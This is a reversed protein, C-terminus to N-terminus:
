RRAGGVCPRARRRAGVAPVERGMLQLDLGVRRQRAGDESVVYIPGTDRFWSDDIDLEVIEVAGGCMTAAQAAVAPPAIMTVPEFGAITAAVEAHAREAASLLEGYLPIRTPWCMVTREHPASEAPMRMNM